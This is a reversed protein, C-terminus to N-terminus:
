KYSERRASVEVTDENKKEYSESRTRPLAQTQLMERGVSARSSWLILICTRTTSSNKWSSRAENCLGYHFISQLRALVHCRCHFFISSRLSSPNSFRPITETPVSQDISKNVTAKYGDPEQSSSTERPWNEDYYEPSNSECGVVHASIVAHASVPNVSLSFSYQMFLGLLLDSAGLWIMSHVLCEPVPSKKAFNVFSALNLARRTM